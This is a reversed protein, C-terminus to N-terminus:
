DAGSALLSECSLNGFGNMLVPEIPAIQEIAKIPQIQQIGKIAEIRPVTMLRQRVACAAYGTHDWIAGNSYWGLHQGNFGYVNYEGSGDGDLYAVPQGGWLYITMGDDKDIYAVAEGGSNFLSVDGDAASEGAIQPPSTVSPNGGDSISLPCLQTASFAYVEDNSYACLHSTGQIGLDRTLFYDIGSAPRISLLWAAVLVAIGIVSTRRMSPRM